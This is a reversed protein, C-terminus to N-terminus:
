KNFAPAFRIGLKQRTEVRRKNHVVPGKKMMRTIARQVTAAKKGMHDALERATQWTPVDGEGESLEALADLIEQETQTQAHATYPGLNFFEPNGERQEIAFMYEDNIDRGRIGLVRLKSTTDNPDKDPPDSIVFSGSAGAMATNTRNITEHIDLWQMAKRKSTHNVLALFLGLDIALADMESVEAYDKRTVSKEEEVKPTEHNWAMRITSETDLIVVKINPRASLYARLFDTLSMFPAFQKAYEGLEKRTIVQVNPPFEPIGFATVRSKIRAIDDESAIYLVDFRGLAAFGLFTGCSAAALALQMLLWSKGVKSRGTFLFAGAPVISEFFWPRHIAEADRIQALTPPALATIQALMDAQTIKKKQGAIKMEERWDEVIPKSSM